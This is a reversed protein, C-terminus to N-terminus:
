WDPIWPAKQHEASAIDLPWVIEARPGDEWFWQVMVMPRYEPGYMLDHSKGTWVIRGSVGIWDTKEMAPILESEEMSGAAEVATKFVYFADYIHFAMHIPWWGTEAYFKDFFPVTKETIPKDVGFSLGTYYDGAEKTSAIGEDSFFITIADTLIFPVRAEYAQKLYTVGASTTMYAFIVQAGSAVQNLIEASFDIALPDTAAEYVLELEPANTELYAKLGAHEEIGTVVDDHMLGYKTINYKPMLVDIMFQARPLHNVSANTSLRFITRYKEYDDFIRQTITVSGPGVFITPIRYQAVLDMLALAVGSRHVGIMADIKDVNVMKELQTTSVEPSGATDRVVIEVPRGLIGGMENIENMALRAAARTNEGLFATSGTLPILVGIKITDEPQATPLTTSYYFWGVNTAILAVALIISVITETKM